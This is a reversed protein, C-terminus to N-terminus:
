QSHQARSDDGDEEWDDGAADADQEDEEHEIDLLTYEDYFVDEDAYDSFYNLEAVAEAQTDAGSRARQSAPWRLADIVAAAAGSRGTPRVDAPKTKGPVRAPQRGSQSKLTCNLKILTNPKRCVGKNGKTRTCKTTCCDLLPKQGKKPKRNCSLDVKNKKKGGKKKAKKKMTIDDAHGVGSLVGGRIEQVLSGSSLGGNITVAVEGRLMGAASHQIQTVGAARAADYAPPGCAAIAAACLVAAIRRIEPIM